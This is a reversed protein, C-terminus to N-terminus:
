SASVSGRVTVSVTFSYRPQDSAPDPLYAPGAIEDVKYVTVGDIVQGPMTHLVARAYQALDHANEPHEPEAWCEVTLTAADTVLNRRVGGVRQVVIFQTPREPPVVSGVHGGVEDSLFEVVVGVADPFVIVEASM